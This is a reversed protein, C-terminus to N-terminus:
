KSKEILENRYDKILNTIITKPNIKLAVSFPKIMYEPLKSHGNEVLSVFEPQDYGVLGSLEKQTLKLKERRQKIYNATNM